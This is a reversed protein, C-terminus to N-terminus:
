KRKKRGFSRALANKRGKVFSSRRLLFVVIFLFLFNLAFSLWNLWEYNKEGVISFKERFEDEVNVNYLTTLVLTYDGKDLNLYSFKKTLIKETEVIANNKESYVEEGNEDLFTFLINVPTPESGFSEFMVRATLDEAKEITRRDLEFKIDFLQKGSKSIKSRIEFEKSFIDEVDGNYITRLYITYKGFDLDIGEFKKIFLSVTEVEISHKELYVQDKSEDQIVFTMEVETPITGFNEFTVMTTLDSVNLILSDQIEFSIDFLQKPKEEEKVVGTLSAYNIEFDFIGEVLGIQFVFFYSFIILVFVGRKLSFLNRM